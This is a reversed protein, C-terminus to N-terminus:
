AIVEAYRRLDAVVKQWAACGRGSQPGTSRPWTPPPRWCPPWNTPRASWHGTSQM